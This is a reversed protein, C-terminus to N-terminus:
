AFKVDGLEIPLAGEDHLWDEDCGRTQLEIGICACVDRVTLSHGEVALQGNVYLGEWDDGVVLVINIGRNRSSGLSTSTMPM